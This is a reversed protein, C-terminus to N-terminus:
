ERRIEVVSGASYAGLAQREGDAWVVEVNSVRTAEGLGLHITPDNAACYSYASRATRMITREGVQCHLTAGLAPRGSEELLRFAIWRKEHGVRNLLLYAKADRNVVVVDVGGDGDVDGFAAARSTAELTRASGGRPEVETFRADPSGRFLLNEEDFPRPGTVEAARTVRGNAQYVDLWGDNDFDVLGLGFRTYSRSAVALGVLPTRDAFFRGDNRFFSDPEGSLNVVFLDEDGDDDIDAAATGMGAKERGDQDTACGMRPAVDEFRTGDINRWLQNKMGDNAVFVDVRGDGDFDTFVCGLGNGLSGQIGVEASVDTFTGDGENRYVTDRAPADYSKPSCYDSPHPKSYCSIEEAASWHIYNVCFLDLDGDADYDLFGASSSWVPNGTGSVATVDGFRGDGENRLLTNAEVNTVYLDVRGDNDFDGAAVGMGYGRDGAGSGETVDTFHGPEVPGRNEYLENPLREDLAEISGAQVLYLDLDGDTDMDFLAAGGGMIEPFFFRERHGSVWEFDIGRAAASEVFWGDEAPLPEGGGCAALLAALGGIGVPWRGGRM